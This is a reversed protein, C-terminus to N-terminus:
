FDMETYHIMMVFSLATIGSGTIGTLVVNLSNGAAVIQNLPVSQWNADGQSYQNPTNALPSDLVYLSQASTDLIEVLAPQVPYASLDQFFKINCNHILSNNKFTVDTSYSGNTFNVNPDSCDFIFAKSKFQSNILRGTNLPQTSM